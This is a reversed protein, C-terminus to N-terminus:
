CWSIYSIRYCHILCSSQFGVPKFSYITTKPTSTTPWTRAVIRGVIVIGRPRSFFMNSSFTVNKLPLFFISFKFGGLRPVKPNSGFSVPNNRSLDPFIAQKPNSNKIGWFPWFVRNCFNDDSSSIFVYLVQRGNVMRTIFFPKKQGGVVNTPRGNRMVGQPHCTTELASTTKPTADKSSQLICHTSCSCSCSYKTPNYPHKSAVNLHQKGSGM